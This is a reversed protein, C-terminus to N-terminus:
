RVIDVWGSENTVVVRNRSVDTAMDRVVGGTNITKVHARTVRNLVEVKGAFLLGVYLQTGDASLAITTAGAGVPASKVSGTALTVTYLSDTSESTVYLESRNPAMEMGQTRVGLTFTRAVTMTRWNVELVSGADRTAVYLLTDNPHVLLHHSTAPLPLSDIVAKTALRIKYLRNANTTVFLASDDPSIAVPLPDGTVPITGTQTGSNVSIIGVNDSYQNAVYAITGAHSFVM